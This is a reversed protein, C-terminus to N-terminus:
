FFSKKLPASRLTCTVTSFQPARFFGKGFVMHRKFGWMKIGKCRITPHMPRDTLSNTRYMWGCRKVKTQCQLKQLVIYMHYPEYEM